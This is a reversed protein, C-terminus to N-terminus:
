VVRKKTLPDWIVVESCELPSPTVCHLHSLILSTRFKSLTLPFFILLNPTRREYSGWSTLMQLLSSKNSGVRWVFQYIVFWIKTFDLSEKLSGSRCGSGAVADGGCGGLVDDDQQWSSASRMPDPCPPAPRSMSCSPAYKLAKAM